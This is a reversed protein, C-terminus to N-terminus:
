AEAASTNAIRTSMTHCGPREYAPATRGARVREYNGAPPDTTKGSATAHECSARQAWSDFSSADHGLVDSRASERGAQSIAKDHAAVMNTVPYTVALDQLNETLAPRRREDDAPAVVAVEAPDERARVGVDLM